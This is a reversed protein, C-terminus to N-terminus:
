GLNQAPAEYSGEFNDQVKFGELLLKEVIDKASNDAKPGYETLCGGVVNHRSILDQILDILEQLQFGESTPTACDSFVSQDLSDIDVHVYINNSPLKIAKIAGNRTEETSFVRVNFEDIFREEEEEYSRLGSFIVQAPKLAKKIFKTMEEPGEAMLSRLTMGHFNKSPSSEPTHLDAHADIWLLTLDGNYKDNLYTLQAFDSTCDGGCTFITEPQEQELLASIKGTQASLQTLGKVNNELHIDEDNLEIVTTNFDQLIGEIIEAGKPVPNKKGIGQWQPNIIIM